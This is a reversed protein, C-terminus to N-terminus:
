EITLPFRGPINLVIKKKKKASKRDSASWKYGILAKSCEVKLLIISIVDCVVHPTAMGFRLCACACIITENLFCVFASCICKVM